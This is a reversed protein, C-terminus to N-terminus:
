FHGGIDAGLSCTYRWDIRDGGSPFVEAASCGPFTGNVSVMWGSQAGCDFEGLGAISSVYGGSHRLSIGYGSCARELVDLVSNGASLPVEACLIWGDEPVLDRKEEALLEPNSLVTDCRIWLTCTEEQRAETEPAATEEPETEAPTEAPETEAPVPEKEAPETQEPEETEAAATLTEGSPESIEATSEASVPCSERRVTEASASPASEPAASATASASEAAPKEPAPGCGALLGALVTLILIGALFRPCHLKKM